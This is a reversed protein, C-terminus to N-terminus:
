CEGWRESRLLALLAVPWVEPTLIARRFVGLALQLYLLRGFTVNCILAHLRGSNRGEEVIRHFPGPFILMGLAGRRGPAPVLPTPGRLCEPFRQSISIRHFGSVRACAYSERGSGGESEQQAGHPFFALGLLLNQGRVLGFALENIGLRQGVDRERSKIRSREWLARMRLATHNVAPLPVRWAPLAPSPGRGPKTHFFGNL